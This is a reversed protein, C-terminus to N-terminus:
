KLTLEDALASPTLGLARLPNDVTIQRLQQDTLPLVSQLWVACDALCSSSGALTPAELNRICGDEELRVRREFCEYDGPPLGALPSADSVLLINELGKVAIATRVFDPPLHHGDTILSPMLGPEALQPWLSNKFRDIRNPCGNGLHTSLTAGAQVARHVGKSDVLTHGIAVTVGARCAYEILEIAGEMEPALTLLRIQGQALENFRDFAEISPNQVNQLAHAGLAGDEPSIFPGELHIGLLRGKCEPTEMAEALVPLVREYVEPTATVVTACYGVTGLEVQMSTVKCVEEVTLSATSFDIGGWGNVQLDIGKFSSM